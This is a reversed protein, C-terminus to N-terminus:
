FRMSGQLYYNLGQMFSYRTPFRNVDKTTFDFRYQEYGGSIYDQNNLLNTIGINLGFLTRSKPWNVMWTKYFSLDVTWAAPVKEQNLIENWQDSQFEVLDVAAITRRLPNFNIRSEEFRNVNLFLSWFKKSRYTLGATYASQPTGSVYLNKAYITINKQLVSGDNDQTITANPRSTYIYQGVAAAGQLSLTPLLKYEIAAEIGAYEKDIGTLSFNVFTREDDHYFSTSEIGNKSTIYYGALSVKIYPARLDYRIEGLNLVETELGEVVNDRTRPSVYANRFSPAMESFMGSVSVYNRGDIKYRVVAKASPLFFDQKESSGL